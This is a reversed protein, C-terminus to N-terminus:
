FTLTKKFLKQLFKYFANSVGELFSGVIGLLVEFRGTLDNEVLNVRQRLLKVGLGLLFLRVLLDHGIQGVFDRLELVDQGIQVRLELVDLGGDVVLAGGLDLFM